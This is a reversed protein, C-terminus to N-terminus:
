AQQAFLRYVAISTFLTPAIATALSYGFLRRFNNVRGTPRARLFKDTSVLGVLSVPAVMAMEHLQRPSRKAWM